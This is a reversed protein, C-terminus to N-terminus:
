VSSHHATASVQSLLQRATAMDKEILPRMSDKYKSLDAAQFASRIRRIYQPKASGIATLAQICQRASIPKDDTIHTLFEDIFGDFAHDCDWQANAALIHMIRNRVLSKPHHLLSAFEKVFPYWQDSEQSERIIKNAYACAYNDDKETLAALARDIM